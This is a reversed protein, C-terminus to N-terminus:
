SCIKKLLTLALSRLEQDESLELVKFALNKVEVLPDGQSFPIDLGILEPPISYIEALVQLTAFPPKATGREYEAVTNRTKGIKNACDQQTDGAASRYKKLCQGIRVAEDTKRRM